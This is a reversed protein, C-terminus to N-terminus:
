LDSLNKQNSEDLEDEKTGKWIKTARELFKLLKVAIKYSKRYALRNGPNV